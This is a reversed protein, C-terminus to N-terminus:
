KGSGHSLKESLESNSPEVLRSGDPFIITPVSEFGRNIQRIFERGQADEEIDIEIYRINMELFMARARRCDNCWQKGYLVIEQPESTYLNSM